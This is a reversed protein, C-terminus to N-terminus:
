NDDLIINKIDNLKNKLITANKLELNRKKVSENKFYKLNSRIYHVLDIDGYNVFGLTSSEYDQNLFDVVDCPITKNDYLLNILQKLKM